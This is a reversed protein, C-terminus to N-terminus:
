VNDEGLLGNRSVVACREEKPFERSCCCACLFLMSVRLLMPICEDVNSYGVCAPVFVSGLCFRRVCSCRALFARSCCPLRGEVPVGASSDCLRVAPLSLLCVRLVSAAHCATASRKMYLKLPETWLTRLREPGEPESHDELEVSLEGQHLATTTTLWVFRSCVTQALLQLTQTGCNISVLAQWHEGNRWHPQRCHM